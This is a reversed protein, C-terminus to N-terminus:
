AVLKWNAGAHATPLQVGLMINIANGQGPTYDVMAGPVPSFFQCTVCIPRPGVHKSSQHAVVPQHAVFGRAMSATAVPLAEQAKSSEKSSPIDDCQEQDHALQGDAVAASSRYHEQVAAQIRQLVVLSRQAEAQSAEWTDVMVLESEASGLQCMAIRHQSPLLGPKGYADNVPSIYGGLVNHGAQQLWCVCM